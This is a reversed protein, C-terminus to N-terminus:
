YWSDVHEQLGLHYPKWLRLIANLVEHTMFNLSLPPMGITDVIALSYYEGPFISKEYRFWGKLLCKLSEARLYFARQFSISFILM